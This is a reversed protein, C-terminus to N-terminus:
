VEVSGAATSELDVIVRSPFTDRHECDHKAKSSNCLSKIAVSKNRFQIYFKAIKQTGFRRNPEDYLRLSRLYPIM